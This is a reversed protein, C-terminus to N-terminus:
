FRELRRSQFLKNYFRDDSDCLLITLSRSRRLWYYPVVNTIAYHAGSKREVPIFSNLFNGLRTNLKSKANYVSGLNRKSPAGSNQLVGNWITSYLLMGTSRLECLFYGLFYREARSLEAIPVRYEHNKKQKKSSFELIGNLEDVVLHFPVNGINSELDSKDM